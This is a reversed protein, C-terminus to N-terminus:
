AALNNALRQAMHMAFTGSTAEVVLVRMRATEDDFLLILVGHTTNNPYSISLPTLAFRVKGQQGYAARGLNGLNLKLDQSLARRTPEVMHVIHLDRLSPFAQRPAVDYVRFTQGSPGQVTYLYAGNENKQLKTVCGGLQRIHQPGQCTDRLKSEVPTGVLAVFMVAAALQRLRKRYDM